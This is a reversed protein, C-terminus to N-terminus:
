RTLGNRVILRPSTPLRAGRQGMGRGRPSPGLTPSRERGRNAASRVHWTHARHHHGSASTAAPRRSRVRRGITAPPARMSQSRRWGLATRVRSSPLRPGVAPLRPRRGLRHFGLSGGRSGSEVPGPRQPLDAGRSGSPDSREMGRKSPPLFTQLTDHLRRVLQGLHELDEDSLPPVTDALVGPIYELVQRGLEDRGFTRPAADFGEAALHELLAEVAPTAPTVPKRVTAGIRVVANQLM